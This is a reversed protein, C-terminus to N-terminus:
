NSVATRIEGLGDLTGRAQDLQRGGHNSVYVVDVGHEVALRADEASAIGKLILPLKYNRRIRAVDKWSFAAQDNLANPSYSKRWPKQFRRVMDRERRSYVASDVTLCLGDFGVAEVQHVQEDVWNADGRVYLQYIADHATTARMRAPAQQSLSGFFMPLGMKSVAAGAEVNGHPHFRHLAGVPALFIPMQAQRKFIKTEINLHSVDVLVRPRLARREIAARNRLITAESEAGGILYDKAVPQLAALGAAVIEHQVVFEPDNESM